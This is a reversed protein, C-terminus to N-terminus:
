RSALESFLAIAEPSDYEAGGVKGAIAAGSKDLVYTTPISRAFRRNRRYQIIM